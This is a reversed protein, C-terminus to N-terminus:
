PYNKYIRHLFMYQSGENSGDLHSPESSLDCCITEIFFLFFIMGFIM